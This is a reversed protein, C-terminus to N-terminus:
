SPKAAIEASELTMNLAGIVQGHIDQSASVVINPIRKNPFDLYRPIPKGSIDSIVGGAERAIFGIAGWDIIQANEKVYAAIDGDLIDFIALDWTEPNYDEELDRVKMVKSLRDRKDVSCRYTLVTDSTPQLVHKQWPENRGVEEKTTKFAGKGKLGIYFVGRAPIYTVAAAIDGRELVTLIIDFIPLGDKYFVTGNIPDLAILVRSDAPFYKLNISREAEELEVSFQPFKALTAMEVMNQVSLDADTLAQSFKTAGQGKEDQSHVSSQVQLAYDGALILYPLYYQIIEKLDLADNSENGDHM